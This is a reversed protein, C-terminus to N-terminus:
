HTYFCVSRFSQPLDIKTIFSAPGISDVYDEMRPLPFCDSVTVANVKHYDTCFKPTNDTKAALLCPLSWPSDSPKALNNSMLYEEAKM